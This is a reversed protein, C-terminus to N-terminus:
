TLDKDLPIRVEVVTGIGSWASIQCSGGVLAAREQMGLLGWCPDTNGARLAKQVDFGKGNDKISMVIEDKPNELDIVALTAEAHRIINTVAEQAIRFLVIRPEVDLQPFTDSQYNLEIKLSYRQQIESAYWRLAAILGLDDLQPPHLGSVLRQLEKLGNTSLVELQKAQEQARPPNNAITQSLARLGLGLATLTQGTEDHLERAIRQRELEQASVTRHLLEARTAELRRREAAQAERLAEIRNRNEVEFVRLSHIIAAAGIAAMAARLLQVPFGFWDLFVMANLYHSPFIMSSTVFLQGIGGYIGFAVAAILMDRGFSHMGEQNFRSRQVLLGWVTLAAGPIALSYRTYVDAAVIFDGKPLPAIILEFLGIAWISIVAFIAGWRLSPRSPGSILRAGFAILMVFSAALAILRFPAIWSNQPNGAFSPSILLFMEVWEHTGHILGFWALPPLAQAFDLESSHGMELMVALGMMFFSLGYIFYILIINRIFFEAM